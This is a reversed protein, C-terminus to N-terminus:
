IVFMWFNDVLVWCKSSTRKPEVTVVWLRLRNGLKINNTNVSNQTYRTNTLQNQWFDMLTRNRHTTLRYSLTQVIRRGLLVQCKHSTSHKSVGNEVVAVRRLYYIVSTLMYLITSQRCLRMENHRRYATLTLHSRSGYSSTDKNKINDSNSNDRSWIM